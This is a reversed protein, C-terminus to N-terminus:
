NILGSQDPNILKPMITKLRKGLVKTIIKYDHDLLSIPRYSSCELPDKGTKHLVTINALSMIQPLTKNHNFNNIMPMFIPKLDTWYEKYLQAPIGDPGITM